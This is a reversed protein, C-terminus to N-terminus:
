PTTPSPSKRQPTTLAEEVTWGNRLIRAKVAGRGFGLKRGWDEMSMRVGNFEIFDKCRSRTSKTEIARELTWGKRLRDDIRRPPLGLKEELDRACILEGNYLVRLTDRKNRNQVKRSAWRCNEPSYGSNNDVREITTGQPRTGMDRIFVEFSNWEKCIGIGRGGYNIFDRQKSNRCRKRM